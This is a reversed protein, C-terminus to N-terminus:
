LLIEAVGEAEPRDALLPEDGEGIDGVLPEFIVRRCDLVPDLTVVTCRDHDVAFRAPRDTKGGVVWPRRRERLGFLGKGMQDGLHGAVLDFEGFALGFEVLAALDIPRHQIGTEVQDEPEVGL